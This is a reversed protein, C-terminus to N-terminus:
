NYIEANLKEALRQGKIVKEATLIQEQENLFKRIENDENRSLYVVLWAYGESENRINGKMTSYLIGLEKQSEPDGTRASKNLYRLGSEYNRTVGIGTLYANAVMKIAEKKAGSDAVVKLLPFGIEPKKKIGFSGNYSSYGIFFIADPDNLKFGEGYLSAAKKEDKSVHVGNLYMYGLMSYAHGSFAEDANDGIIQAYIDFAINSKVGFYIYSDAVMTKSIILDSKNCKKSKEDKTLGLLYDAKTETKNIHLDEYNKHISKCIDDAQANMSNALVIAVM